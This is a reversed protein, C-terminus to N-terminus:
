NCITWQPSDRTSSVGLCLFVAPVSELPRRRLRGLACPFKQLFCSTKQSPASFTSASNSTNQELIERSERLNSTFVDKFNFRATHKFARRAIRVQGIAIVDLPELQKDAKAELKGANASYKRVTNVIVDYMHVFVDLEFAIVDFKATAERSLRSTPKPYKCNKNSTQIANAARKIRFFYSPNVVSASNISPFAL